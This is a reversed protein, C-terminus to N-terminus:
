RIAEDGANQPGQVARMMGDLWPSPVLLGAMDYEVFAIPSPLPRFIITRVQVTQRSRAYITFPISLAGFRTPRQPLMANGTGASNGFSSSQAVARQSANFQPADQNSSAFAQQSTKQIPVPDIEFAMEGQRRGDVTLDFGMISGFRRAELPVFDGPDVGSFRYIDPRLDFILLAMRDPVQFAGMEYVFPSTPSVEPSFMGEEPQRRWLQEFPILSEPLIETALRGGSQIVREADFRRLTRSGHTMDFNMSDDGPNLAKVVPLPAPTGLGQLGPRVLGGRSALSGTYQRNGYKAM